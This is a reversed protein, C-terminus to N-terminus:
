FGYYMYIYIFIYIYIYTYITRSGQLTDPGQNQPGAVQMSCAEFAEKSQGAAGPLFFVFCGWSWSYFGSGSVPSCYIYASLHPTGYVHPGLILGCIIRIVLVGLIPGRITPLERIYNGLDNQLLHCGGLWRVYTWM